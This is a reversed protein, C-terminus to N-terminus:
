LKTQVFNNGFLQLAFSRADLSTAGTRNLLSNPSLQIQGRLNIRPTGDEWVLPTFLDDILIEGTASHTATDIQDHIGEVRVINQTELLLTIASCVETFLQSIVSFLLDTNANTLLQSLASITETIPSISLITSLFTSSDIELHTSLHTKACFDALTCLARTFEVTARALHRLNQANTSACSLSPIAVTKTAFLESLHLFKETLLHLPCDKDAAALCSSLHSFTLNNRSLSKYLAQFWPTFSAFSAFTELLQPEYDDSLSIESINLTMEKTISTLYSLSQTWQPIIDLVGISSETSKPTLVNLLTQSATILTQLSAESSTIDTTLNPYNNSLQQGVDRFIETINKIFQINNKIVSLTSSNDLQINLYTCREALSNLADSIQATDKQFQELAFAIHPLLDTESIENIWPTDEILDFGSEQLFTKSDFSLKQLILSIADLDQHTVSTFDKNLLILADQLTQLSHLCSTFFDSFLPTNGNTDNLSENLHPLFGLLPFLNSLCHYEYCLTHLSNLLDQDKYSEINSVFSAFIQALINCQNALTATSVQTDKTACFPVLSSTQTLDHAYQALRELTQVFSQLTTVFGTHPSASLPETLIKATLKQSSTILNEFNTLLMELLLPVESKDKIEQTLIPTAGLKILWFNLASNLQKEFVENFTTLPAILQDAYCSNVLTIPPLQQRVSLFHTIATDVSTLGSQLLGLEPIGAGHLIGNQPQVIQVFIDCNQAFTSLTAVTMSLTDEFDACCSKGRLINRFILFEDALKAFNLQMSLLNANIIETPCIRCLPRDSIQLAQFHQSIEMLIEYIMGLNKLLDSQLSSNQSFSDVRDHFTTTMQQLFRSFIPLVFELDSCVHNYTETTEFVPPTISYTSIFDQLASIFSNTSGEDESNSYYPYFTSYVAKFDDTLCHMKCHTDPDSRASECNSVLSSFNRELTTLGQILLTTFETLAEVNHISDSSVIASFIAAFDSIPKITRFLVKFPEECCTNVSQSVFDSFNNALLAIESAIQWIYYCYTKEPEQCALCTNSCLVCQDCPSEHECLDCGQCACISWKPCLPREQCLKYLVKIQQSRKLLDNAFRIVKTGLDTSIIYRADLINSLIQHVNLQLTRTKQAYIKLENLLTTQTISPPLYSRIKTDYAYGTFEALNKSTASFKTQLAELLSLTQFMQCNESDPVFTNFGNLLTTLSESEEPDFATHLKDLFESNSNIKQIWSDADNNQNPNFVDTLLDLEANCRHLTSAIEFDCDQALYEKVSQLRSILMSVENEQLVLLTQLHGAIDEPCYECFTETLSPMSSPLKKFNELISKFCQILLIFDYTESYILHTDQLKSELLIFAENLKSIACFCADIGALTQQCNYVSPHQIETTTEDIKYNQRFETIFDNLIIFWVDLFATSHPSHCTLLNSAPTNPSRLIQTWDNLHNDEIKQLIDKARILLSGDISSSQTLFDAISPAEAVQMAKLGKSILELKDAFQFIKYVLHSCCTKKLYTILGNFDNNIRNLCEPIESLILQEHTTDEQGCSAILCFSAPVVTTLKQLLAHIDELQQISDARYTRVPCQAARGWAQQLSKQIHSLKQVIKRYLWTRDNVYSIDESTAITRQPFIAPIPELAKQFDQSKELITNISSSVNCTLGNNNEPSPLGEFTEIFTSLAPKFEEAKQLFSIHQDESLDPLFDARDFCLQLNQLWFYIARLPILTSKCLYKQRLNEIFVTQEECLKQCDLSITNAADQAVYSSTPWVSTALAATLQHLVHRHEQWEKLLHFESDPTDLGKEMFLNTIKELCLRLRQFDDNILGAGYLPQLSLISPPFTNTMKLARELLTSSAEFNQTSQEYFTELASAQSPNLARFSEVFSTLQTNISVLTQQALDLYDESRLINTRPMWLQYFNQTFRDVANVFTHFVMSHYRTRNKELLLYTEEFAKSINSFRQLTGDTTATSCSPCQLNFSQYFRKLRASLSFLQGVGNHLASLASDHAPFPPLESLKANFNVFDNTIDNLINETFSILESLCYCGQNQDVEIPSTTESLPDAFVSLAIRLTKSIEKVFPLLVTNTQARIAPSPCAFTPPIDLDSLTTCLSTMLTTTKQINKAFSAIPLSSDSLLEENIEKFAGSLCRHLGELEVALSRLTEARQRCCTPNKLISDIEGCSGQISEIGAVAASCAVKLTDKNLKECFFSPSDLCKQFINLIPTLFASFEGIIESYCRENNKSGDEKLLRNLWQKFDEALTTSLYTGIHSFITEYPEMTTSLSPPNKNISHCNLYKFLDNDFSILHKKISTLTSIRDEGHPNIIPKSQDLDESLQKFTNSLNQLAPSTIVEHSDALTVNRFTLEKINSLYTLSQYISYLLETNQSCCTNRYATLADVSNQTYTALSSCAESLKDKFIKDLQAGQFLCLQKAHLFAKIKYLVSNQEALLCNLNNWNSVLTESYSHTITSLQKALEAFSTDNLENGYFETRNQAIEDLPNLLKELGKAWSELPRLAEADSETFCTMFDLRELRLLCEQLSTTGKLVISSIADLKNSINTINENKLKENPVNEPPLNEQSPNKQSTDEPATDQSSKGAIRDLHQQLNSFLSPLEDLTLHQECCTSHTLAFWLHHCLLPLNEKPQHYNLIQSPFPHLLQIRTVREPLSHYFGELSQFVDGLDLSLIQNNIFTSYFDNIIIKNIINFDNHIYDLDEYIQEECFIIPPLTSSHWEAAFQQSLSELTSIFNLLIESAQEFHKQLLNLQSLEDNENGLSDITKQWLRQAKLLETPVSSLNSAVEQFRSPAGSALTGLLTQLNNTTERYKHVAHSLGSFKFQDLRKAVTDSSPTLLALFTYAQDLCQETHIVNHPLCLNETNLVLLRFHLADSLAIAAPSLNERLATVIPFYNPYVLDPNPWLSALTHFIQSPIKELYHLCRSLYVETKLCSSDLSLSPTQVVPPSWGLVSTILDTFSDVASQTHGALNSLSLVFRTNQCDFEPMEILEKHFNFIKNAFDIIKENAIQLPHSTTKLLNEQQELFNTINQFTKLASDLRQFAEVLPSCCDPSLIQHAFSALADQLPLWEEPLNELQQLIKFIDQAIDLRICSNGELRNQLMTSVFATIHMKEQHEFQQLQSISHLFTNSGDLCESEDNSVKFLQQLLATLANLSQTRKTLNTLDLTESWFSIASSLKTLDSWSLEPLLELTNSLLHLSQAYALWDQLSLSSEQRDVTDKLAALSVTGRNLTPIFTQLILAFEQSNYAAHPFDFLINIQYQLPSSLSTIFELFNNTEVLGKALDVKSSDIQLHLNFRDMFDVLGQLTQGLQTLSVGVSTSPLSAALSSSQSEDFSSNYTKMLRLIHTYFHGAIDSLAQELQVAAQWSPSGQFTIWAKQLPVLFDSTVLPTHAPFNKPKLSLLTDCLPALSDILPNPSEALPTSDVVELVSLATKCLQVLRVLERQSGKIAPDFELIKTTTYCTHQLAKAVESIKQNNLQPHSILHQQNYYDLLDIITSLNKMLEKNITVFDPEQLFILGSLSSNFSRCHHLLQQLQSIMDSLYFEQVSVSFPAQPTIIEKVFPTFIESLTRLKKTYDEIHVDLSLVDKLIPLIRNTTTLLTEYHRLLSEEHLNVTNANNTASQQFRTLATQYNEVLGRIGSCITRFIIDKEPACCFSRVTDTFHLFSAHLVSISASLRQLFTKSPEHEKCSTCFPKFDSIMNNFINEVDKICLSLQNIISIEQQTLIDKLGHTQIYDVGAKFANAASNIAQLVYNRAEPLAKECASESIEVEPPTTTDEISSLTTNVNTLIASLATFYSSIYGAYCYSDQTHTPDLLSSLSTYMQRIISLLGQSQIFEDLISKLTDTRTVGGNSARTLFSLFYTEFAHLPPYLTTLYQRALTACREVLFIDSLSTLSDSLENFGDMLDDSLNLETDSYTLLLEQCAKLITYFTGYISGKNIDKPSALKAIEQISEYIQQSGTEAQLKTLKILEPAYLHMEKCIEQLVETIRDCPTGMSKWSVAPDPAELGLRQIMIKLQRNLTENYPINNLFNCLAETNTVNFDQLDFHLADLISAIPDVLGLVTQTNLFGQRQSLTSLFATHKKLESVFTDLSEAVPFLCRQKINFEIDELLESIDSGEQHILNLLFEEQLSSCLIRPGQIFSRLASLWAALHDKITKINKSCNPDYATDFTRSTYELVQSLAPKLIQQLVQFIKYLSIQVKEQQSLTLSLPSIQSISTVNVEPDQCFTLFASSSERLHQIASTQLSRFENSHDCLLETPATLVTQSIKEFDAVFDCFATCFDDLERGKTSEHLLDQDALNGLRQCNKAILLFHQRAEDLANTFDVCCQPSLMQQELEVCARSFDQCSQALESAFYPTLTDLLDESVFDHILGEFFSSTKTLTEKLVPSVSFTHERFRALVQQLYVIGEQVLDKILLTMESETLIDSPTSCTIPFETSDRGSLNKHAQLLNDALTTLVHVMQRPDEKLQTSLSDLGQDWVLLISNLKSTNTIDVEFNTPASEDNERTLVVTEVPYFALVSLSHSLKRLAQVIEMKEKLAKNEVQEQLLDLCGALTQQYAQFAKLLLLKELETPLQCTPCSYFHGRPTKFFQLLEQYIMQLLDDCIKICSIQNLSYNLDVQNWLLQLHNLDRTTTELSQTIKCLTYSLSKCDGGDPQHPTSLTDSLIEGYLPQLLSSHKQLAQTLNTLDDAHDVFNRFNLHFSELATRTKVWFESAHATEPMRQQVLHQLVAQLNQQETRFAELFELLEQSPNRCCNFQELHHHLQLLASELDRLPEQLSLNPSFSRCNECASPLPPSREALTGVVDALSLLFDQASPNFEFVLDAVGIHLKRVCSTFRQLYDYLDLMDEHKQQCSFKNITIQQQVPTYSFTNCLELRLKQLPTLLKNLSQQASHASLSFDEESLLNILDVFIRQLKPNPAFTVIQHSTIHDFIDVIQEVENSINHIYESEVSCCKNTFSDALEEIVGQLQLTLREIENKQHKLSSNSHLGENTCNECIIKKYLDTFLLVTSSLALIKEKLDTSAGLSPCAEMKVAISRTLSLLNTLGNYFRTALVEVTTCPNSLALPRLQPLVSKGDNLIETFNSVVDSLSQLIHISDEPSSIFSGHLNELIKQATEDSITQLKEEHGSIAELIELNETLADIYKLIEPFNNALTTCCTYSLADFQTFAHALSYLATRLENQQTEEFFTAPGFDLSQALSTALDCFDHCIRLFATHPLREELKSCITYNDLVESNFAQLNKVINNTLTYIYNERFIADDPLVFAQAKDLKLGTLFAFREFSQRAQNALDVKEPSASWNMLAPIVDTRLNSLVNELLVAYERSEDSGEFWNIKSFQQNWFAILSDTFTSLEFLAQVRAQPAMRTLKDQIAAVSEIASELANSSCLFEQEIAVTNCLPCTLATVADTTIKTKLNMLSHLTPSLCSIWKKLSEDTLTTFDQQYLTKWGEAARASLQSIRHLLVEVDGCHMLCGELPPLKDSLSFCSLVTEPMLAHLDTSIDTSQDLNEPSLQEVTECIKSLVAQAQQLFNIKRLCCSPKNVLIQCTDELLDTIKLFNELSSDDLLPLAITDDQLSLELPTNFFYSTNNWLQGFDRILQVYQTTETTYFNVKKDFQHQLVRFFSSAREPLARLQEIEKYLNSFTPECHLETTWLSQFSSPVANVDFDNITSLKNLFSSLNSLSVSPDLFKDDDPLAAFIASFIQSFNHVTLIAEALAPCDAYSQWIRAVQRLLSSTTKIFSHLSQFSLRYFENSCSCCGINNSTLIEHISSLFSEAREAIFNLSEWPSAVPPAHINVLVLRLASVLRASHAVIRSVLSEILRCSNIEDPIFKSPSTSAHAEPLYSSLIENFSDFQSVLGGILSAGDTCLLNQFIPRSLTDMLRHLVDYNPKHETAIYFAVSYLLESTRNLATELLTLPQVLNKCSHCTSLEAVVKDCLHKSLNLINNWQQFGNRIEMASLHCIGCDSFDDLVFTEYARQLFSSLNQYFAAANPHALRTESAVLLLQKLFTPLVNFAAVTDDFSNISSTASNENSVEFLTNLNAIVSQAWTLTNDNNFPEEEHVFPAVAFYEDSEVDQLSDLRQQLTACLPLISNQFLSLETKLPCLHQSKDVENLARDIAFRISNIRELPAQDWVEAYEELGCFTSSIDDNQLFTVFNEAYNQFSRLFSFCSNYFTICLESDELIAYIADPLSALAELLKSVSDKLLANNPINESVDGFLVAIEHLAQPIREEYASNSLIKKLPEFPNTSLTPRNTNGNTISDIFSEITGVCQSLAKRVPLICLKKLATDKRGKFVEQLETATEAFRELFKKGINKNFKLKTMYYQIKTLYNSIVDFANIDPAHYRDLLSLNEAVQPWMWFQGGLTTSLSNLFEQHTKEKNQEIFSKTFDTFESSIDIYLSESLARVLTLLDTQLAELSPNIESAFSSNNLTQILRRRQEATFDTGNLAEMLSHLEVIPKALIFIDIISSNNIYNPILNMENTIFEELVPLLGKHIRLENCHQCAGTGSGCTYTTNTLAPLLINSADDVFIFFNELFNDYIGKFLPLSSADNAVIEALNDVFQKQHPEHLTPVTTVLTYLRDILQRCNDNYITTDNNVDDSILNRIALLLDALSPHSQFDLFLNHTQSFLDFSADLSTFPSTYTLLNVLDTAYHAADRCCTCYAIRLKKLAEDIDDLLTSCVPSSGFKLADICESCYVTSLSSSDFDFDKLDNYFAHTYQQFSELFDLVSVDLDQGHAHGKLAGELASRLEMFEHILSKVLDVLLTDPPDGLDDCPGFLLAFADFSHSLQTEELDGDLFRQFDEFPNKNLLHCTLPVAPGETGYSKIKETFSKVAAICRNLSKRVSLVCQRSSVAELHNTIVTELSDYLESTSDDMLSASDEKLASFANGFSGWFNLDHAHYVDASEFNQTTDLRSNLESEFSNKISQFRDSIPETTLDKAATDLFTGFLTSPGEVGIGNFVNIIEDFSPNERWQNLSEALTLSRQKDPPNHLIQSVVECLWFVREAQPVWALFDQYPSLDVNLGELTSALNNLTTGINDVGSEQPPFDCGECAGVGPQDEDCTFSIKEDEGASSPALVPIVHGKLTEIFSEFGNQFSSLKTSLTSLKAVDAKSTALVTQWIWENTKKHIDHAHETIESLKQLLQVCNNEYSTKDEAAADSENGHLVNSAAQLLKTLSPSSSPSEETFPLLAKMFSSEEDFLSLIDINISVSPDTAITGLTSALDTAFHASDECCSTKSEFFTLVKECKSQIISILDNKQEDNLLTTNEASLLYIIAEQLTLAEYGDSNKIVNESLYDLAEAAQETSPVLLNFLETAKPIAKNNEELKQAATSIKELTTLIANDTAVPNLLIHKIQSCLSGDTSAEDDKTGFIIKWVDYSALVDSPTTNETKLSAIKSVLTPNMGRSGIKMLSELFQFATLEDGEYSDPLGTLEISRVSQLIYNIRPFLNTSVMAAKEECTGLFSDIYYNSSYYYIFSLISVDNKNASISTNRLVSLLNSSIASLEDPCKLLNDVLALIKSFKGYITLSYENDLANDFRNNQINSPIAIRLPSCTPRSYSRALLLKIANLLSTYGTKTFNNTDETSQTTKWGFSNPSVLRSNLDTFDGKTSAYSFPNLSLFPTLLLIGLSRLRQLFVM